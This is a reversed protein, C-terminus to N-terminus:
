NRLKTIANLLSLYKELTSLASAENFFADANQPNIELAKNYCEIAESYKELTSLAQTKILFPMLM